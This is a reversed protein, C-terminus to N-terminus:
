TNKSIFFNRGLVFDEVGLADDAVVFNTELEYDGLQFCVRVAIGFTKTRKSNAAYLDIRYSKLTAGTQM